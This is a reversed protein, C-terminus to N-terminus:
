VFYKNYNLFSSNFNRCTCLREDVFSTWFFDTDDISLDFYYDLSEL